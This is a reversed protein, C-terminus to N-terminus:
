VGLLSDYNVGDMKTPPVATVVVEGGDIEVVEAQYQSPEFPVENGKGWAPGTQYGVGLPVNFQLDYCIDLFEYVWWLFAWKSIEYLEEREDPHVEAVVSDHVTNVLFTQMEMAKLIHWIAVIAIPIIEGTALNQVPYNCISPFDRCYGSSSMSANPYHFTIGTPHTISKQRLVKGQWQQQARTIGGYKHRFAEYYREQDEKTYGEGKGDGFQGGYLPKFTEKKALTRWDQGKPCTKKSEAVEEVTCGHLVSATYSHVDVGDVIDQCIDIDQGIFGAVRFEIQAGDMECTDWGEHRANYLPKYKRPSNQLQISKAKPYLKFKTKIGSSSLRHTKTQAQNFQAYFICDERETVVGYFYDLNKSLDAHLQAFEAKLELFRAQKKTRCKFKLIEEGTPRIPVGNKKPEPFKLVDYIFEGMQKTSRPNRGEIMDMLKAEVDAMARKATEHEKCVADKDLHVGNLEIDALPCSLLCRNYFLHIVDQEVLAERLKLWLNRTQFIDSENRRRLLSYPIERGSVGGSMLKDVLPDKTVGLYKKALTALTLAGKKGAKLNGTICYEALMPDALLVRSADLGARILWKIDFKGNQAVVYDAEYMDQILEDMDHIGGYVFKQQGRKDRGKVWAASIIDNQEWTADPSKEDGEIDTELDLVVFNDSLYINPDLNLLFEPLYEYYDKAM